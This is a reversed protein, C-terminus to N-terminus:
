SKSNSLGYNFKSNIWSFLCFNESKQRKEKNFYNKFFANKVQLFNNFIKYCLEEM